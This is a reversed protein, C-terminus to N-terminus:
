SGIQIGPIQTPPYIRLIERMRERIEMCNSAEGIWSSFGELIHRCFVDVQLQLVQNRQNCHIYRNPAPEVFHFRELAERARQETIEDRGEHLFACRLAYCDAGSLFVHPTRDPGILSTYKEGMYRDFWAEYRRRSGAGPTELYGCIDPVTLAIFLAAYWNREKLASELAHRLNEVRQESVRAPGVTERATRRSSAFSM